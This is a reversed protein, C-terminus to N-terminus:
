SSAAPETTANPNRRSFAWAAGLLVIGGVLVPLANLQIASALNTREAVWGILLPSPADGLLHILLVNLGMAFARFTPPVCNVIAANIPGSNLFLLFQAAFTLSYILSPPQLVAAVFMLPAALLLGTGSVVMGGHERRRDARDGLWGGALTGLFGAVATIAGFQLGVLDGPLHRERELFTPMWQGLGGVAFTMLTYGITNAWFVKNRSLGALGQLFPLKEAPPGEETAGRAPEPVFLMLLSLLVGPAGGVFFAAHWSYHHGIWGGLAYGLAAGVPIAVYFLSLMRTRQERPYLDSIIAPAVTGYGAEGVGIVSRAVLLAVFSGALGSAVTALSWLFVSGAVLLRRPIRDGLFGGIPSAVMYVIIFATTLSGAQPDSLHLDHELLGLVSAVIFRDLYNFLNIFTLVALGFHAQARPTPSTM